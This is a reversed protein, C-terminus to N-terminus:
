VSYTITLVPKTNTGDITMYNRSFANGQWGSSDDSYFCIGKATVGSDLLAQIVSASLTASVTNGPSVSASGCDTLTGLSSGASNRAIKVASSIGAGSGTLRKFKISASEVTAGSPISSASFWCCGYHKGAGSYWGSRLDTISMQGGGNYTRCVLATLSVTTTTTPTGGPMTATSTNITGAVSTATSSTNRGSLSAPYTSKIRVTAADAVVSNTLYTGACTDILVESLKESAIGVQGRYARCQALTMNTNETARYGCAYGPETPSSTNDTRDGLAICSECEVYDCNHFGFADGTDGPCDVEINEFRLRNDCDYCYISGSIIAHCVHTGTSGDNDSWDPGVVSILAGSTHQLVANETTTLDYHTSEDTYGYRITVASPIYKGSLMGFIDSLSGFKTIGDVDAADVVYLNTPGGYAGRVSPSNIVGITMGTTDWMTDGNEGPVNFSIDEDTIKVQVTSDEDGTDLGVANADADLKNTVEISLGDITSIITYRRKGDVATRINRATIDDRNRSGPSEYSVSATGDYTLTMRFIPMSGNDEVTIIEGARHYWTGTITDVTKPVYAPFATVMDYINEVYPRAEVDSSGYLFPNNCIVYGNTGSGVIVGVDGETMQLQVEDIAPTTYEMVDLTTAEDLGITYSGTEFTVLRVTGTEDIRFYGGNAEAMWGLIDRKTVGSADFPNVGYERLLNPFTVTDLSYTLGVSDLLDECVDQMTMPYTLTELWADASVDLLMMLDYATMQITDTFLKEPTEGMFMGISHLHVTTYELNGGSVGTYVHADIDAASGFTGDLAIAVGKKTWDLIRVAMHDTVTILTGDTSHICSGSADFVYVTDYLCAIWAANDTLTTATGNVYLTDTGPTISYVDGGHTVVGMKGASCSVTQVTPDEVGLMACFLGQYDLGSLINDPNDLTVELMNSVASGPLYDNDANLTDGWVLGGDALIDDGTIFENQSNYWLLAYQRNGARILNTYDAM